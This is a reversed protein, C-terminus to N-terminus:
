YKSWSINYCYHIMYVNNLAYMCPKTLQEQSMEEITDVTDEVDIICSTGDVIQQYQESIYNIYNNADILMM